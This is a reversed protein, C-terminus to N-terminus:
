LLVIVAILGVSVSTGLYLKMRDRIYERTSLLGEQLVSITCVIADVQEEAACCGLMDGLVLFSTCERETLMRLDRRTLRKWEDYFFVAGDEDMVKKVEKLFNKAAGQADVIVDDLMQPLLPAHSHMELKMRELVYVFETLVRLRSIKYMLPRTGCCLVSAFVLLAGFCKLM